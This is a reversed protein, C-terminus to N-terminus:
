HRCKKIEAEIPDIQKRQEDTIEGKPTKSLLQGPETKDWATLDARVDRRCDTTTCACMRDRFDRYDSLARDAKNQSSCAVLFMLLAVTRM